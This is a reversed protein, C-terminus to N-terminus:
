CSPQVGSRIFYVNTPPKSLAMDYLHGCEHVVTGIKGLAATASTPNGAFMKVCGQPFSKNTLGGVVLDKGIPYRVGLVGQYWAELATPSFPVGSIDATPNPLAETYKGDTCAPDVLPSTNATGGTGAGGTGTGGTSTGGTGVGASGGSGALGGTGVGASGGLAGGMGSGAAGAMGGLGSGAAGGFGTGGGGDSGSCGLTLLLLGSLAFARM